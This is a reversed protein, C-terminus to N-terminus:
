LIEQLRKLKIHDQLAIHLKTHQYKCIYQIKKIDEITPIYPIPMSMLIDLTVQLNNDYDALLYNVALMLDNTSDLYRESKIISQVVDDITIM